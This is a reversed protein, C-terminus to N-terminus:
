ETLNIKRLWFHTSDRDDPFIKLQLESHEQNIFQYDVWGTEFRLSGQHNLNKELLYRKTLVEMIAVKSSLKQLKLFRLEQQQLNFGFNLTLFFVSYLILVILLIGGNLKKNLMGIINEKFVM